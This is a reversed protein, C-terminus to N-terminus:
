FKMLHPRQSQSLAFKSKLYKKHAADLVIGADVSVQLKKREEGTEGKVKQAAGFFDDEAGFTAKKAAREKKANFLEDPSEIKDVVKLAAEVNVKESTAIVYAQSVRKLPVGNVERPGTVLLLGSKKLQQLFVVRKGQYQGALLILVTGPTISARVKAVVLKAGARLARKAPKKTDETPYWKGELAPAKFSRLLLRKGGAAEVAAKGSADKPASSRKPAAKVPPM